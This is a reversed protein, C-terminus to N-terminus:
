GAALATASLAAIYPHDPAPNGPALADLCDDLSLLTHSLWLARKRLDM